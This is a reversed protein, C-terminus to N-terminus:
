LFLRIVLLGLFGVLTQLTRKETKLTKTWSAPPSGSGGKWPTLRPVLRPVARAYERYQKGFLRGLTEEELSVILGYQIGFFGLTVALMIWLRNGGALFVVGCYIFLNGLYLPNRVHAFPGSTCLTRAGVKRTRTAGGAHRVGSLRILEGAAVLVIGPALLMGRRDAFYLIAVALPIPTYSRYRFFFERLSM